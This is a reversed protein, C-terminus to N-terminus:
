ADEGTERLGGLVVCKHRESVDSIGAARRLMLGFWAFGRADPSLALRKGIRRFAARQAQRVDNENAATM